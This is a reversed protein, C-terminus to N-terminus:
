VQNQYMFKLGNIKNICVAFKICLGLLKLKQIVLVLYLLDNKM